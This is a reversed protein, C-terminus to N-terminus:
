KTVAYTLIGDGTGQGQPGQSWVQCNSNLLIKQRDREAKNETRHAMMLCMGGGPGYFDCYEEELKRKRVEFESLQEPALFTQLALDLKEPDSIHVYSFHEESLIAKLADPLQPILQRLWADLEDVAQPHCIKHWHLTGQRNPVRYQGILKRLVMRTQTALPSEPTTQNSWDNRFFTTPGDSFGGSTTSDAFGHHRTATLLTAVIASSSWSPRRWLFSSSRSRCSASRDPSPPVPLQQPYLDQM